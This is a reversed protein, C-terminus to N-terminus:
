NKKESGMNRDNCNNWVHLQTTNNQMTSTCYKTPFEGIFSDYKYIQTETEPTSFTKRACIQYFFGM